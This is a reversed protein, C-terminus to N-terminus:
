RDCGDPKLSREGQYESESPVPLFGFYCDKYYQTPEYPSSMPRYPPPNNYCDCDQEPKSNIPNPSLQTPQPPTPQPPPNQEVNNEPQDCEKLNLQKRVDDTIKDFSKETKESLDQVQEIDEENLKGAKEPLEGAVKEAFFNFNEFITKAMDDIGDLIFDIIKDTPSCSNKAIMYKNFSTTKNSNNKKSLGAFINQKAARHQRTSFEWNKSTGDANIFQSIWKDSSIKKLKWTQGINSTVILGLGTREFQINYTKESSLNDARIVVIISSLITQRESVTFNATYQKTRDSNLGKIQYQKGREVTMFSSQMSSNTNPRDVEPPTRNSPAFIDVRPQPSSQPNLPAFIDTQSPVANNGGDNSFIDINQAIITNTDTPPVAANVRSDGLLYCVPSNIGLVGCLSVAVARHLFSDATISLFSFLAIAWFWVRRM